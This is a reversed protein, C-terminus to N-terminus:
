CGGAGNWCRSGCGWRTPSCGSDDGGRRRVRWMVLRDTLGRTLELEDMLGDLRHEAFRKRWKSVTVPNCGLSAAIHKNTGGEAAALVIKARLALAQSSSQRRAWSRLTKAEAPTLEISVTPRGRTAM